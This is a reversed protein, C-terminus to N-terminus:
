LWGGNNIALNYLKKAAEAEEKELYLRVDKQQM